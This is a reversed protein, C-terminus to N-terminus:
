KNALIRKKSLTKLLAKDQNKETNNAYTVFLNNTNSLHTFVFSFKNLSIINNKKALIKVPINHSIIIKATKILNVSYSGAYSLEKEDELKRTTVSKKVNLLNQNVM